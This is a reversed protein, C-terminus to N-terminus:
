LWGQRKALNTDLFVVSSLGNRHPCQGLLAMLPKDRALITKPLNKLWQILYQPRQNQNFQILLWWPPSLQPSCAFRSKWFIQNSFTWSFTSLRGDCCFEVFYHTPCHEVFFHYILCLRDQHFCVLGNTNQRM